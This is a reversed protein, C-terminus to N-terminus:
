PYRTWTKPTCLNKHYIRDKIVGEGGGWFFVGFFGLLQSVNNKHTHARTTTTKEM